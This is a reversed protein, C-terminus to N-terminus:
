ENGLNSDTITLAVYKGTADIYYVMLVPDGIDIDELAILETGRIIKTNDDCFFTIDGKYTTVVIEGGVFDTQAVTGSIERRDYDQVQQQCYSLNLPYLSIMAVFILLLKKM